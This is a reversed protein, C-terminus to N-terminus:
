MVHQGDNIAFIVAPPLLVNEMLEVYRKFYFVVVVMMKKPDQTGALLNLM